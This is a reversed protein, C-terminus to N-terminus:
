IEWLIDEPLVEKISLVHYAKSFTVRLLFDNMFVINKPKYLDNESFYNYLWKSYRFELPLSLYYHILKQDFFPSLLQLNFYNYIKKFIANNNYYNKILNKCEFDYQLINCLDLNSGLLEEAGFDTIIENHNTKTKIYECLIYTIVGNNITKEDIIEGTKELIEIVISKKNNMEKESIIIETHNTNFYKSIIRSYYIEDSNELGVCYTDIEVNKLLFTNIYNYILGIILSSHLNGTILCAIRPKDNTSEIIGGFINSSNYKLLNKVSQNLRERLTSMINDLNTKTILSHKEYNYITEVTDYNSYKVNEKKLQWTSLVKYPLIYESYSGPQFSTISYYSSKYRSENSKLNKLTNDLILKSNSFCFINNYEDMQASKLVYFPQIGLRDMAVFMKTEPANFNDDILIVCFEGDLLQLTYEIGYKKYLSIFLKEHKNDIDEDDLFIDDNFIEFRDYLEEYNYITGKLLLAIHKYEFFPIEKNTYGHCCIRYFTNYKKPYLQNIKNIANYDDNLILYFSKSYINEQIDYKSPEECDIKNEHSSQLLESNNKVSDIKEDNLFYSEM